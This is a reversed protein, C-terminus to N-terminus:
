SNEASAAYESDKAWSLNAGSLDAGSLNANFLDAGALDAKRLTAGGLDVRMLNVTATPQAIESPYLGMQEARAMLDTEGFLDGGHMVHTCLGMGELNAGTLDAGDLAIVRPEHAYILGAGYLFRIVNRKHRGDLRDFVSLTYSRALNRLDTTDRENRLDNDIMLQRMRDLYEQVTDDQARREADAQAARNQVSTFFYGALALAAPVVLLDLWDWVPKGFLTKDVASAILVFVGLIIAARIAWVLRQGPTPHWGPLITARLLLVARERASHPEQDVTHEEERVYQGGDYGVAIISSSGLDQMDMWCWLM